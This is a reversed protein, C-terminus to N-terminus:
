VLGHVLQSWSCVRIFQAHLALKEEGGEPLSNRHEAWHPRSVTLPYKSMGQEYKSALQDGVVKKM